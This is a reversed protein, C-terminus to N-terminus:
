IVDSLISYMFMMMWRIACVIYLLATSINLSSFHVIRWTANIQFVRCTTKSLDKSNCISSVPHCHTETKFDDYPGDHRKGPRTVIPCMKLCFAREPDCCQSLCLSLSFVKNERLTGFKYLFVFFSFFLMMCLTKDGVHEMQVVSERLVIEVDSAM